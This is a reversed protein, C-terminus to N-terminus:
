RVFIRLSLRGNEPLFDIGNETQAFRGSAATLGYEIGNWHYTLDKESVNLETGSKRFSEADYKLTMKANTKGTLDADFGDPLCRFLADDALFSLIQEDEASVREMKGRIGNLRIECPHWLFGDAIAPVCYACVNEKCVSDLFPEPFREDFVHWDRIKLNGAADRFLNMRQFASLYWIGQRDQKKFDNLTVSATVPTIKHHLRFWDATESLTEVRVKGAARLDAIKRCQMRLPETIRDAGFSNEQGAQAYALAFHPERFTESLFWDVWAPNGGAPEYVPELTCVSQTKGTGVSDDYQDLPDSGLMRFVPVPIQMSETQAPMYANRKSPYYANAWYGGWLTYGDTGYQDKCNCAARIGYKRHLYELLHADFFWSGMSAPYSGFQRKFENVFVDAIREREEQKYGVSFGCHVHWDWPYRGKWQVGAAEANAQVVEFWIGCEHTPPMNKRVYEVFDGQTLADYQFLWTVPLDFEKAMEMEDRVPRFLDMPMRPECARIFNILHIVNTNQTKEFSKKM